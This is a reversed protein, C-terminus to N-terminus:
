DVHITGAIGTVIGGCGLVPSAVAPELWTVPYDGSPTGPLIEVQVKDVRGAPIQAACGAIGGGFADWMIETTDPTVPTAYTDRSVCDVDDVPNTLEFYQPLVLHGSTQGAQTCTATGIMDIPLYILDGAHGSVDEVCLEPSAPTVNCNASFTITTAGADAPATSGADSSTTPGSPNTSTNNSSPAGADNQSSSASAAPAPVTAEDTGTSGGCAVSALPLLSAIVTLLMKNSNMNPLCQLACATAKADRFATFIPM